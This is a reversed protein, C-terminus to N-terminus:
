AGDTKRNKQYDKSLDDDRNKGCGALCLVSMGICLVIIKNNIRQLTKEQVLRCLYLGADM